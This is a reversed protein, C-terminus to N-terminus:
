VAGQDAKNGEAFQKAGNRHELQAGYHVVMAMLILGIGLAIGGADDDFSNWDSLNITEYIGDTIAASVVALVIQM